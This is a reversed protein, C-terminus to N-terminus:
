KAKKKPPAKKVITEKVALKEIPKLGAECAKKIDVDTMLRTLGIKTPTDVFSDDAEEGAEFTKGKPFTFSYLTIRSEVKM